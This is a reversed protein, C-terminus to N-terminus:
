IETCGCNFIFGIWLFVFLLIVTLGGWFFLPTPPYVVVLPLKFLASKCLRKNITGTFVIPPWYLIRQIYFSHNIALVLGLQISALCLILFAM